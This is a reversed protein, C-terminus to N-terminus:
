TRALSILMKANAKRMMSTKAAMALRTTLKLATDNRDV